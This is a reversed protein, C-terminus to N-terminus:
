RIHAHVDGAASQWTIPSEPGHRGVLAGAGAAPTFPQIPHGVMYSELEALESCTTDLAQDMQMTSLGLVPLVESRFQGLEPDAPNVAELWLQDALHVLSAVQVHDGAGLPDHHFRVCHSLWDPLRWAECAWAGVEPHAVGLVRLEAELPDVGRAIRAEVMRSERPLHKALVARGVDHLMGAVFVEEPPGIALAEALRRSLVACGLSHRWLENRFPDTGSFFSQYSAMCFTLSRVVNIGLLGVAQPVSSVQSTMGYAASNVMRLVRISLSQDTAVINGLERPSPYPRNLVEVLKQFVFPMADLDRVQQRIRRELATVDM